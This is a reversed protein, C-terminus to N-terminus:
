PPRLCFGLPQGATRHEAFGSGDGGEDLALHAGVVLWMLSKSSM